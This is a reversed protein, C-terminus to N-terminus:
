DVVYESIDFNDDPFYEAKALQMFARVSLAERFTTYESLVISDEINMNLPEILGKIFEYIKERGVIKEFSKEEKGDLEGIYLLMYEIDNPDKYEVMDFPRELKTFKQLNDPGVVDFPTELIKMEKM